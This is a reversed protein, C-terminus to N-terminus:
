LRVMIAVIESVHARVAVGCHRCRYLDTPRDLHKQHHHECVFLRRGCCKMTYLWAAQQECPVLGQIPQYSRCQCREAHEAAPQTDPRELTCTM